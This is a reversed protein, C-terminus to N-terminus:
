LAARLNYGEPMPLVSPWLSTEPWDEPASYTVGSEWLTAYDVQRGCGEDAFGDETLVAVIAPARERMEDLADIADLPPQFAEQLFERLEETDEM